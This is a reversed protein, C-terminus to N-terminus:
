QDYSKKVTCTIVKPATAPTGIDVSRDVGAAFTNNTSLTVTGQTTSANFMNMASAGSYFQVNLTGVDTKCVVSAWTEAVGAEGLQLTTTGTWTSTAYSFSPYQFPSVLKSATYLSGSASLATTSAYTFTIKSTLPATALATGTYYLAAGSTTYSAANTGGSALGLASALTLVGSSNFSSGFASGFYATGSVTLATTSAYPITQKVTSSWSNDTTINAALDNNANQIAPYDAVVTSGTTDIFATGFSPNFKQLWGNISVWQSPVNLAALTVVASVLINLLIPM